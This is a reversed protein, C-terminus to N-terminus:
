AFAWGATAVSYASVVIPWGQADIAVVDGPLLQITGRGGPLTVFGNPSISGQVPLHATSGGNKINQDHKVGQSISALDAPLLVLPSQSYAVATLPASTSLTHVAV